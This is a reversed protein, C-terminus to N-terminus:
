AGAVARNKGAAKAALLREDALRFLETPDTTEAPAIALGASVTLRGEPGIGASRVAEVLRQALHPVLTTDIHPAIVAFEEGGTRCVADGVRVQARLADCFARLTRDGAQHGHRDNIAKFDDVDLVVLGLQHGHRRVDALEADLRETFHRRNHVGTLEDTLAQSRLLDRQRANAYALAALTAFRRILAAEDEGFSPDEDERWVNLTGVPEGSVLLPAVILAEPEDDPTGPMVYRGLWPHGRELHVLRRELVARGTISDDLKPRSALTEPVHRGQAFMPVLEGAGEDVEYVALSTFGVIDGLRRAMERLTAELSQEALVGACADIIAELGSTPAAPDDL